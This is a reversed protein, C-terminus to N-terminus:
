RGLVVIYNEQSSSNYGDSVRLVFKYTKSSSEMPAIGRVRGEELFLWNPSELLTLELDAIPTDLDSLLPVYVYEEGGVVAVPPLSVIFPIGRGNANEVSSLGKVSEGREKLFVYTLSFCLFVFVFISSIMLKFKKSRLM